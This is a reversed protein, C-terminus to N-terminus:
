NESFDEARILELHPKRLLRHFNSTPFAAECATTGATPDADPHSHLLFPFLSTIHATELRPCDRQDAPILGVPMWLGKPM